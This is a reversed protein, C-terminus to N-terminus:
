KQTQRLNLPFQSLLMILSFFTMSFFFVLALLFLYNLFLLATLTVTLPSHSDCDPIWTPFNITQIFNHCLEGIRNTEGDYTLSDKHHINFDGFVFVNSCPNISLIEEKNCLIGDFALCLSSSFLSWYLDQTFPHGEKVYVAIGHMYTVCDKWIVGWLSIALIM